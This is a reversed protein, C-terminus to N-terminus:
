TDASLGRQTRLRPTAIGGGGHAIPECHSGLQTSTVVHWLSAYRDNYVISGMASYRKGQLVM